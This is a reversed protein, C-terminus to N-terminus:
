IVLLMLLLLDTLITNLFDSSTAEQSASLAAYREVVQKAAQQESVCGPPREINRSSPRSVDQSSPREVVQKAPREVDRRTPRELERGSHLEGKRKLPREAGRCLSCDINPSASFEVVNKTSQEPDHGLPREISFSAPLEADRLSPRELDHVVTRKVVRGVPHKVDRQASRESDRAQCFSDRRDAQRKDSHHYTQRKHVRVLESEKLPVTNRGKLPSVFILDDNLAEQSITKRRRADLLSAEQLEPALVAARKSIPAQYNQMFSSLRQQMEQLMNLNPDIRQSVPSSVVFNEEGSM